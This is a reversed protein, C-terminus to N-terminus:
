ASINQKSGRLRSSKGNGSRKPNNFKIKASSQQLVEEQGNANPNDKEQGTDREYYEMARIHEKLAEIQKELEPVRSAQYKVEKLQGEQANVLQQLFMIESGLRVVQLDNETLFQRM